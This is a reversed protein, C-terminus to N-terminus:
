RRALRYGGVSRGVVAKDHFAFQQALPYDWLGVREISCEADRAFATLFGETHQQALFWITAAGWDLSRQLFAKDAHKNAKQAGFPPNMIVTDPQQTPEFATVDSVVFSCGGAVGATVAAARAVEVAAPDIDFGELRRAGLLAAGVSFVGTGCGADVVVRGEIAGDDHAAILLEAAIRDPTRYQELEAKPSPHLPVKSLAKELEQRRM